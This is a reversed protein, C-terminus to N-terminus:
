FSRSVICWSVKCIAANRRDISKMEKLGTALVFASVTGITTICPYECTHELIQDHLLPYDVKKIEYRLRFPDVAEAEIVDFLCNLGLDSESQNTAEEGRLSLMIARCLDDDHSSFLADNDDLDADSDDDWFGDNSDFHDYFTDDNDELDNVHQDVIERAAERDLPNLLEVSTGFEERRANEIQKLIEKTKRRTQMKKRQRKRRSRRRSRRSSTSDLTDGPSESSDCTGCVISMKEFVLASECFSPVNIGGFSAFTRFQIEDM